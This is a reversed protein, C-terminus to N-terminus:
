STTKSMRPRMGSAIRLTSRSAAGARPKAFRERATGPMMSEPVVAPAPPAKAPSPCSLVPLARRSWTGPLMAQLQAPIYLDRRSGCTSRRFALAGRLCILQASQTWKDAARRRARPMALRCRKGTSRPGLSNAGKPAGSGRSKRPHSFTQNDDAFSPRERAALVTIMALALSAIWPRKRSFTSQTTASSTMPGAVEPRVTPAIVIHDAGRM